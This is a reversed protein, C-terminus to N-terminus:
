AGFRQGVAAAEFRNGVQLKRLINSVHVSATKESIFLEEAIERNTYGRGLLALVEAERPTLGVEGGGLVSPILVAPRQLDIRTRIALHEVEDALATAGLDIATYHAESLAQAARVRSGHGALVAEAERWKAYALEFPRCLATWGAAVEAWRDPDANELRTYEADVVLANVVADPSPLLGVELPRRCLRRAEDVLALVEPTTRGAEVAARVAYVCLEHPYFEDDGGAVVSLGARAADLGEDYDHEWIALEAKRSHFRAWEEGGARSLVGAVSELRRRAQSFLGRRIELGALVHSRRIAASTHTDDLLALGAMEEAEDWRGLRLLAEAGYAVTWVAIADMVGLREAEAIGRRAMEVAEATRGAALDLIACLNTYVRVIDEPMGDTVAIARSQEIYAIGEDARGTSALAVGLTNLARGELMRDEM